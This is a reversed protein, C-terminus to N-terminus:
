RVKLPQNPVISCVFLLAAVDIDFTMMVIVITLILM